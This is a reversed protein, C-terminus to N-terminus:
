NCGDGSKVGHLWSKRKNRVRAYRLENQALILRTEKEEETIETCGTAQMRTGWKFEAGRSCARRVVGLWTRFDITPREGSAFDSTGRKSPAGTWMAGLAMAEGLNIPRGAQRSSTHAAKGVRALKSHAAVMRAYVVCEALGRDLM